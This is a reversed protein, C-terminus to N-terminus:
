TISPFFPPIGALYGNLGMKKAMKLWQFFNKAKAWYKWRNKTVLRHKVPSGRLVPKLQRYRSPLTGSLVNQITICVSHALLTTSYPITMIIFHISFYAKLRLFEVTKIKM